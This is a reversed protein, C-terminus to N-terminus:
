PTAGDTVENPKPPVLLGVGPTGALTVDIPGFPKAQQEPGKMEGKKM